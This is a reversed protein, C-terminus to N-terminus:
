KKIAPTVVSDPGCVENSTTWQSWLAQVATAATDHITIAYIADVGGAGPV